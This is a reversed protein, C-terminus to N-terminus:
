RINGALRHISGGMLDTWWLSGDPAKEMDSPTGSLEGVLRVDNPNPVGGPGPPLAFLCKGSFDAVLLYGSLVRFSGPAFAISTTATVPSKCGAVTGTHPFSWLPPSFGAPTGEAAYLAECSGLRAGAFAPDPYAGQYCPWGANDPQGVTPSAIRRVSEFLSAGPDTVYLEDTGPRFTFRFPNRMGYAVIRARNPDTSTEWPNGPAALGTAPDIRIISGDLSVPDSAPRRPSQSRLAGGQATAPTPVVGVPTPPDGCPNAPVNPGSIQGWDPRLASAGEGASAYLMGDRGFELHGVSHTPFQQCWDEVLVDTSVAQGKEVRLRVLRGSALCGAGSQSNSCAPLTSPRYAYLAYIYPNDPFQPDVALGLLGREGAASVEPIRTVTHRHKLNPSFGVIRGAQEAVFVEGTPAFAIATPHTLGRALVEDYLYSGVASHPSATQPETSLAALLGATMVMVLVVVLVGIRRHLRHQRTREARTKARRGEDAVVQPSPAPDPATTEM